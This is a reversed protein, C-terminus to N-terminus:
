ADSTGEVRTLYTTYETRDAQVITLPQGPQQVLCRGPGFLPVTAIDDPSALEHLMRVGDANDVRMTVRLGLQSRSAGGVISADMRQSILLVRIGVKASERLLVAVAGEVRSRVREAPKLPADHAACAELLGPYEELVVVVLPFAETFTDFKDLRSESLMNLREDMLDTLRTLVALAEDVDKGVARLDPRSQHGWPGLLVRSPDVGAVVVDSRGALNGLLTYTLESKGSRTAGQLAVHAAFRPDWTAPGDETRGFVIPGLPSSRQDESFRTGALPDPRPTRWWEVKLVGPRPESVVTEVAAWTPAMREAAARLAPLDVRGTPPPGELIVRARSRTLRARVRGTFGSPLLAMDEFAKRALLAQARREWRLWDALVPALWRLWTVRGLWTPSPLWPVLWVLPLAVTAVTLLIAMVLILLGPWGYPLHGLLALWAVGWAVTIACTYLITLSARMALVLLTGALHFAWGFADRRVPRPAPAQPSLTM